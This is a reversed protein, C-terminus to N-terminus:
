LGEAHIVPEPYRAYADVSGINAPQKCHQVVTLWWVGDGSWTNTVPDTIRIWYLSSDLRDIEWTARPTDVFSRREMQQPKATEQVKPHNHQVDDKVPLGEPNYLRVDCGLRFLIRCIEFAAQLSRYLVLVRLPEGTRLLNELVLKTATSLELHSIWDTTQEDPGAALSCYTFAQDIDIRKSARIADTNDLDGNSVAGNKATTATAM